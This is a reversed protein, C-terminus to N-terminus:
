VVAKRASVFQGRRAVRQKIEEFGLSSLMGTLEKEGFVTIGGPTSPERGEPACGVVIVVRGGPVLVRAMEAVAKAPDELMHVVGISCAADFQDDAFPLEEAGGRVYALNAMPSQAARAVMPASADIGIVLGDRAARALHRTYNGPGCGVDLVRNGPAVRLMEMTIRREKAAGPGFLGFFARSMLPRWIREYIGALVKSNFAQQSRHPGIADDAGLADVYGEVVAPQAGDPVKVLGIAEDLGSPRGVGQGQSNM